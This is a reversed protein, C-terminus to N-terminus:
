ADAVWTFPTGPMTFSSLFMMIITETVFILGLIKALIHLPHPAPSNFQGLVGTKETDPNTTYDAKIGAAFFPTASAITEISPATIEM